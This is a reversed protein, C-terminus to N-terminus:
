LFLVKIWNFYNLLLASNISFTIFSILFAYGYVAWGLNELVLTEKLIMGRFTFEEDKPKFGAFV